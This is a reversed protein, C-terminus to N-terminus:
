RQGETIQEDLFLRAVIGIPIGAEGGCGFMCPTWRSTREAQASQMLLSLLAREFVLLTMAMHCKRHIGLRSQASSRHKAIEDITVQELSVLRPAIRFLVSSAWWSSLVTVLSFLPLPTENASLVVVVLRMLLM